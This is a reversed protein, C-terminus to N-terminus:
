AKDAVLSVFIDELSAQHQAKVKEFDGDVILRGGHLVLLWEVIRELEHVM